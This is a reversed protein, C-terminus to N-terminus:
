GDEEADTVVESMEIQSNEPKTNEINYLTIEVQTKFAKLEALFAKDIIKLPLIIGILMFGCKVAFYTNGSEDTRLTYIIDRVSYDGFPHIHARNIFEIGYQTKLAVADYTSYTVSLPMRETETEYNDTDDFNFHLPLPEDIRFAIKKRQSDTIEYTNCFSDEDFKPCGILPYIARGDSLWQIDREPDSYLILQGATKCLSIIKKIKM